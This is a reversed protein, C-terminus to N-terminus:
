HAGALQERWPRGDRADGVIQEIWPHGVPPVVSSGKGNTEGHTSRCKFGMTSGVVSTRRFPNWYLPDGVHPWRWPTWVQPDGLPTGNLPARVTEGRWLTGVTNWGSPENWLIGELPVWLLYRWPCGGLPICELFDGWPILEQPELGPSGRWLTINLTEGGPLEKWPSVKATGWPTGM